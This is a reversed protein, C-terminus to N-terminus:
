DASRSQVGPQCAATVLAVIKQELELYSKRMREDNFQGFVSSPLDYEIRTVGHEDEFILVRWPAYLAAALNYQTMEVAILPQGITYQNAKGALQGVLPLLAGHKRTDNFQMLGSKGAMTELRGRVQALEAPLATPSVKAGEPDFAGLQAEFAAVTAEFGRSSQISVHQITIPTTQMLLNTVKREALGGGSISKLM